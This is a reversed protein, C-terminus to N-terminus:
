RKRRYSTSPTGIPALLGWCFKCTDTDIFYAECNPCFHADQMHIGLLRCADETEDIGAPQPVERHSGDVAEFIEKLDLDLPDSYRTREPSLRQKLSAM